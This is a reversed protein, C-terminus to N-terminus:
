KELVADFARIFEASGSFIGIGGTNIFIVDFFRSRSHNTPHSHALFAVIEITLGSGWRGAGGGVGGGRTSCSTDYVLINPM